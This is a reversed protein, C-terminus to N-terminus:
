FIKISLIIFLRKGVTTLLLSNIIKDILIKQISM